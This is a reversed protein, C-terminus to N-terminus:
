KTVIVGDMESMPAWDRVANGALDARKLSPADVLPSIDTIYNEGVYLEELAPLEAAFSLDSLETKGLDLWRLNELGRLSSVVDDMSRNDYWIDTVGASSQIYVNYVAKTKNLNLVELNALAGFNSSPLNFSCESANLSRLGTLGFLGSCDGFFTGKLELTELSTLNALPALSFYYDSYSDGVIRLTKLSSLGSFGSLSELAWPYTIDLTELESLGALYQVSKPGSLYLTKLGTLAAIEEIGEMDGNISLWEMDTNGGLGVVSKLNQNNRLTLKRLGTLGSLFYGDKLGTGTLSVEELMPLELLFQFDTIEDGEIELKKLAINDQLPSADTLLDNGVLSVSELGLILGLSEISTIDTNKASFARLNEMGEIGSISTISGIIHLEELWPFALFTEMETDSDVRITLSRLGAVDHLTLEEPSIGYDSALDTVGCFLRETNGNGQIEVTRTSALFDEASVENKDLLSGTLTGSGIGLYRISAIDEWTLASTSKDLLLGALTLEDRGLASSPKAVDELLALDQSSGSLRYAAAYLLAAPRRADDGAFLEAAERLIEVDGCNDLQAATTVAATQNGLLLDLEVLQVVAEYDQDDRELRMLLENRSSLNEATEVPSTSSTGGNNGSDGSRYIFFVAAIALLLAILALYIGVGTKKKVPASVPRGPQGFFESFLQNMENATKEDVNGNGSFNWGQFPNQQDTGPQQPPVGYQPPPQTGYPPPPEQQQAGYPPPSVQSNGQFAGCEPCRMDEGPEFKHNCFVCRIKAM